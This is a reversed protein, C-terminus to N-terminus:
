VQELCQLEVTNGVHQDCGFSLIAKSQQVEMKVSEEMLYMSMAPTYYYVPLAGSLISHFAYNLSLKWIVGKFRINRGMM